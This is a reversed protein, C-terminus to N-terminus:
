TVPAPRWRRISPTSRSASSRRRARRPRVAVLDDGEGGARRDLASIACALLEARLDDGDGVRRAAGLHGRRQGADLHDAVQGVHDLGGVDDDVGHDAEGAQATVIAVSRAPLRRARALLSLRIAAPGTTCGSRAVGPASSTGTSLSCQAM